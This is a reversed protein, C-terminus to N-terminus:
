GAIGSNIVKMKSHCKPCREKCIYIYGDKPEEEDEFFGEAPIFRTYYTKCTPCEVDNERFIGRKCIISVRDHNFLKKCHYCEYITPTLRIYPEGYLLRNEEWEESGPEVDKFLFCNGTSDEETVTGRFLEFIKRYFPDGEGSEFEQKMKIADLHEFGCEGEVLTEHYGCETCQVEFYLGM